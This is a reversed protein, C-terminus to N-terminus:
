RRFYMMEEGMRCINTFRYKRILEVAKRAESRNAFSAIVTEESTVWWRSDRSEIRLNAPWLARCNENAMAGQPSSQRVLFYELSPIPRGIFCHNDFAYFRIIDLARRAENESGFSSLRSYGDTLLWTKGEDVISVSHPDLALCDEDSLEARLKRLETEASDLRTKYLTTSVFAYAVAGTMLIALSALAILNIHRNKSLSHRQDKLVEALEINEKKLFLTQENLQTKFSENRQSESELITKSSELQRTLDAITREHEKIRKDKQEYEAIRAQRQRKEGNVKKNHEDIAQKIRNVEANWQNIKEEGWQSITVNMIASLANITHYSYQSQPCAVFPMQQTKYAKVAEIDLPLAYTDEYHINFDKQIALRFQQEEGETAKNVVFARLIAKKNKAAASENIRRVLNRDQYFSTYDPETVVIFSDALTSAEISQFAFGGRTDMVVYDFENEERIQQLLTNLYRSYESKRFEFGLPDGSGQASDTTGSNDDNDGNIETDGYLGRSSVLAHYFKVQGNLGHDARGITFPQYDPRQHEEIHHLINIVASNPTVSHISRMSEQGLLFLSLGDTGVDSDIMLVKHGATILAYGLSAAFLTKGTGGKGSAVAIIETKRNITKTMLYTLGRRRHAAM